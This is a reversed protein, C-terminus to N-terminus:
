ITIYDSKAYGVTGYYNVVYWDEWEGLVTIPDGNYARAKIESNTNPKNRINLSGWGVSVVGKQPAQPMVFPIGFYETLSLVVNRAIADINNVIWAADEENDHYAFEIFVSPAIPQRVEGLRTTPLTRVLSPIPYIAKLNQAVITAARKGRTSNPHYYVDTGRVQGYRDEPAANSHLALHLDYNGSNSQRISTVATMDPTNRVYQIGSSQLYPIMADAILNMYYEESGGIVYQNGEQTSPSLYIKPM